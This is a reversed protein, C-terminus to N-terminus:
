QNPRSPEERAVSPMADIAKWLSSFFEYADDAAAVDERRLLSTGIALESASPFLVECQGCYGLGFADDPGERRAQDYV